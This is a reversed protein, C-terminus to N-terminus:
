EGKIIQLTAVGGYCAAWLVGDRYDISRIYNSPLGDAFTYNAKIGDNRYFIGDGDTGFWMAGTPEVAITHIGKDTGLFNYGYVDWSGNNYEVLKGSNTGFLIRDGAVAISRVDIEGLGTEPTRDNLNKDAFSVIGKTTGFWVTGSKDIGCSWTDESPLGHMERFRKWRGNEYYCIGAATGAWYRGNDDYVGCRVDDDSIGDMRDQIVWKDQNKFIIGNMTNFVIGGDTALVISRVIPLTEEDPDKLQTWKGSDYVNLEDEWTGLWVRDSNEITTSIFNYGFPHITSTVYNTINGNEIVSMGASTGVYVKKDSEVYGSLVDNSILGISENYHNWDAGKYSHVGDASFIWLSEDPLTIYRTDYALPIMSLTVPEWISNDWRLIGIQSGAWISGDWNQGITRYSGAVIRDRNESWNQWEKELCRYIGNNETGIWMNNGRDFFISLVSQKGPSGEEDLLKFHGEKFSVAGNASAIWLSSNNDLALDNIGVSQLGSSLGFNTFSIGDFAAIGSETGIWLQGEGDVLVDRIINSPLGDATTFVTYSSDPLEWKVLGGNTACYVADQFLAIGTVQAPDTHQTITVPLKKGSCSGFVMALISVMSLLLRTRM